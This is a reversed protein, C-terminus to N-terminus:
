SSTSNRGHNWRKALARCWSYWRDGSFLRGRRAAYPASSRNPNATAIDKVQRTGLATGDTAWIERGTGDDHDTFFVVGLAAEFDEAASTPIMYTGEETGDTRWLQRVLDFDPTSTIASFLFGDEVESVLALSNLPADINVVLPTLDLRNFVSPSQWEWLSYGTTELSLFYSSDASHLWGRPKGPIVPQTGVAAGNSTAAAYWLQEDQTFFLHEGDTSLETPNKGAEAVISTGEQTGDTFWLERDFRGGAVFFLDNGVVTLDSPSSSNEGHLDAVIQTGANTGNSRWLESSTGVGNPANVLATFYLDQGVATLNHLSHFESDVKVSVTGEHTGDSRWLQVGSDMAAVFFAMNGVATLAFLSSFQGILITGADSGDSVWLDEHDGAADAFFLKGGVSAFSHLDSDDTGPRIDKVLRTGKEAGDTVWLERGHGFDEATFFLSGASEIFDDPLSSAAQSFEVNIDKLLGIDATLLRRCELPEIQLGRKTGAFRGNCGLM